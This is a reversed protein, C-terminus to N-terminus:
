SNERLRLKNNKYIYTCPCMLWYGHLSERMARRLLKSARKRRRERCAERSIEAEKNSFASALERISWTQSWWVLGLNQWSWNVESGPALLASRGERAPIEIRRALDRAVLVSWM